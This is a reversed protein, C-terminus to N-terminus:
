YITYQIGTVYKSSKSQRLPLFQSIPDHDDDHQRDYKLELVTANEDRITYRTFRQALMLGFYRIDWDITLRYRGDSTGYYARRYANMLVPQLRGTAEPQENVLRTLFRLRDLQFDDIRRVVKTGLENQRGKIEFHPRQIDHPDDGYWRVRYKKRQAVGNVNDWYTSLTATDFYINHIQRDPYIKRLSAPHLRLQQALVAPTLHYSKFKREYRM